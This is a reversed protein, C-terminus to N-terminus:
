ESWEFKSHLVTKGDSDSVGVGKCDKLNMAAALTVDVDGEEPTWFSGASVREGDARELWVGYVEERPLGGVELRIETGWRHYELIANGDAQTRVAALELSTRQSDDIIGALVVAAAVVAAAALGAISARRFRGRRAEAREAAIRDVIADGLHDPPHPRRGSRLPDALPLFRAVPALEAVEARCEACGDLHAILAARLDPDLSGLVYAGIYERMVRCTESSM